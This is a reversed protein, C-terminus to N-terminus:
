LLRDEGLVEILVGRLRARAEPSLPGVPRRVPGVPLGIMGAAEKLVAPFSGLDYTSRLRALQRQASRAEALRGHRTLDYVSVVLAPAINALGAVAGACDNVVADLILTDAGTFVAFGQPCAYKYELLAAVSGSSDKVGIVNPCQEILRNMLTPSVTLGGARGPNTYVLVPISVARAIACYHELLEQENPRVYFPTIVSLADAGAQEAYRSLELADRTTIAGTGALVPVRGAAAEVSTRIVEKAEELRLAYLESVSGVVFLGHVGGEVLFDIVVRMAQPSYDCSEDFPTLVPAIIGAFDYSM